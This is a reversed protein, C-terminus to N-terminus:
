ESRRVVTILQSKPLWEDSLTPLEGRTEFERRKERLRNELWERRDDDAEANEIGRELSHIRHALRMLPRAAASDEFLIADETERASRGVFTTPTAGEAFGVKEEALWEPIQIFLGDEALLGMLQWLQRTDQENLLGRERAEELTIDRESLTDSHWRRAFSDYETYEAILNAVM